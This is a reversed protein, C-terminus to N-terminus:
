PQAPTSPEPPQDRATREAEIAEIIQATLADLPQNRERAIKVLPRHDPGTKPLDIADHVIKPEVRYSKAVYRITMWGEIPEDAHNQWYVFFVGARITFVLALTLTLLFSITLWRNTRWLKRLTVALGAAM